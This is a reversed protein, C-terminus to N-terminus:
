GDQHVDVQHEHTRTIAMHGSDDNAEDGVSADADPLMPPRKRNYLTGVLIALAVVFGALSGINKGLAALHWAMALAFVVVVPGTIAAARSAFAESSAKEKEIARRHEGNREVESVIRM